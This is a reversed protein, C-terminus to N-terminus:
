CGALGTLQSFCDRLGNAEISTQRRLLTTKSPKLNGKGFACRHVLMSEVVYTDDSTLAIRVRNARGLKADGDLTIILASNELLLNDAGTMAKFRQGGLRKIITTAISSM